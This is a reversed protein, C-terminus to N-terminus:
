RATAEWHNPSAKDLSIPDCRTVKYADPLPHKGEYSGLLVKDGRLLPPDASTSPVLISASWSAEDGAATTTVDREADFRCPLTGINTWTTERGETSPRWVTITHPYM